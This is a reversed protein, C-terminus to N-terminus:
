RPRKTTRRKTTRRRGEALWRQARGEIARGQAKCAEVILCVGEEVDDTVLVLDLDARSIKGEALVPGRLWDLLGSWYACGVLVVPFRYIKGTQILTLAEFMEDLTGFGGPFIVFASSYKIFMTRRVLFYRFTIVTDVYPNARQEFPLEINCGISRGGGRRAGRNGAEMIGPGGGTIIAFRRRALRYAMEEAAAYQPEDPLTRASGFITVAQDIGALTDFGEIFEGMIRLVRWTDTHTFDGADASPFQFLKEDETVEPAHDRLSDDAPARPPTTATRGTTPQGRQYCKRAEDFAQSEAKALRASSTRRTRRM